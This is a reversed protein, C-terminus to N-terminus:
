QEPEGESKQNTALVPPGTLTDELDPWPQISQEANAEILARRLRTSYEELRRRNRAEMDREAIAHEARAFERDRQAVLDNKRKSEKASVGNRILTIISVIERFFVGIGGAGLFAVVLAVLNINDFQPM